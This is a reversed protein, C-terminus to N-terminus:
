NSNTTLYWSTNSDTGQIHKTPSVILRVLMRDGSLVREVLGDATKGKWTELFSQADGMDHQVEVRGGGSQWLGKDESRATAELLRLKDLQQLAQESDEKRGADERLKLWGEKVMEEPLMRGDQLYVIGYERKTNPITYLVRFQVLKGVVMQRLADRSEYAFQEDGEKKLHPSTSYALSLVRERDPNSPSSLVLSDGSMVSKVKAQSLAMTDYRAPPVNPLFQPTKKSNNRPKPTGPSPFLEPLNAPDQPKPPLNPNSSGSFNRTITQGSAYGIKVTKVGM